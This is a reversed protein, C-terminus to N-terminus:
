SKPDGREGDKSGGEDRGASVVQSDSSTHKYTDNQIHM